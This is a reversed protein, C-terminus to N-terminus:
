WPFLARSKQSYVNSLELGDTLMKLIQAELGVPKGDSGVHVERVPIDLLIPAGDEAPLALTAITIKASGELLNLTIAMEQKQEMAELVFKRARTLIRVGVGSAQKARFIDAIGRGEFFVKLEKDGQDSGATIKKALQRALKSGRYYAKMEDLSLFQQYGIPADSDIIGAERRLVIALGNQKNKPDRSFNYWTTAHVAEHLQLYLQVDPHHIDGMKIVNSARDYVGGYGDSRLASGYEVTVSRKTRLEHTIKAIRASLGLRDEREPFFAKCSDSGYVTGGALSLIILCVLNLRWM